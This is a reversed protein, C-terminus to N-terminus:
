KKKTVLFLGVVGIALFGFICGILVGDSIKKEEVNPNIIGVTKLADELTEVHVDKFEKKDLLKAVKDTYKKNKYEKFSANILNSGDDGFGLQKFDGVVIYPVGDEKEGYEEKVADIFKGNAESSGVNIAKIEFFDKYEEVYNENFYELFAHCHGCTEVYFLYMTVKEHDTKKPLEIAKVSGGLFFLCLIFIKLFKKM